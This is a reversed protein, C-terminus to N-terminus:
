CLKSALRVLLEFVGNRFADPMKIIPYQERMTISGTLSEAIDSSVPFRDAADKYAVQIESSDLQSWWGLYFTASLGHPGYGSTGDWRYVGNSGDLFNTTRWAPFSRSPKVLVKDVFQQALGAKLEKYYASWWHDSQAMQLSSIWLPLRHSHSTDSATGVVPMEPMDLTIKSNGAYAYDPHQSWVGPQLLWHNDSTREFAHEFVINATNVIASLSSSIPLSLSRKATILDAATAMVFMEDDFIATHYPLSPNKSTVKWILRDQMNAFPDRDWMWAPSEWIRITESEVLDELAAHRTGSAASLALFRGALYLFQVRHLDDTILSLNATSAFREFFSALEQQEVSSGISFAAMLPVMLYHGADYADRDTWLDEAVYPTIVQDWLARDEADMPLEICAKVTIDESEAEGAPLTPAPDDAFASLSINMAITALSIAAFIRM